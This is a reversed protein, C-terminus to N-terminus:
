APWRDNQRRPGVYSEFLDDAARGGLSPDYQGVRPTTSSPVEATAGGVIHHAHCRYYNAHCGPFECTGGSRALLDSLSARGEPGMESLRTSIGLPRGAARDAHSPATRVALPGASTM